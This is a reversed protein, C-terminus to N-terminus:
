LEVVFKDVLKIMNVLLIRSFFIKLLLVQTNVFIDFGEIVLDVGHEVIVCM